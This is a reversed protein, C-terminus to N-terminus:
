KGIVVLSEHKDNFALHHIQFVPSRPTFCFDVQPFSIAAVVEQELGGVSGDRVHM